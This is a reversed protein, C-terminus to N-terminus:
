VHDACCPTPNPVEAPALRGGAAPMTLLTMLGDRWIPRVHDHTVVLADDAPPDPTALVLVRDIASGRRLEGVTLTGTLRDRGPFTVIRGSRGHEAAALAAGEALPGAREGGLAWSVEAPPGAREGGLAWSVEAPVALSCALHPEQMGLGAPVLHTCGVADGPLGLARVVTHLLHEAEALTRTGTDIGLIM